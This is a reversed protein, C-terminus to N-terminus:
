LNYIFLYEYFDCVILNFSLESTRREYVNSIKRDNRLGTWVPLQKMQFATWINNKNYNFPSKLGAPTSNSM